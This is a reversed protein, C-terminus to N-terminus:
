AHHTDWRPQMIADYNIPIAPARMLTNPYQGTITRGRAGSALSPIGPDRTAGAVLPDFHSGAPLAVDEHQLALEVAFGDTVPHHLLYENALGEVARVYCGHHRCRPRHPTRAQEGILGM